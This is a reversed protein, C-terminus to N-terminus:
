AQRALQIFSYQIFICLNCTNTLFEFTDDLLELLGWSNFVTLLSFESLAYILSILEFSLYFFLELIGRYSAFVTGLRFLLEVLTFCPGCSEFFPDIIQVFNNWIELELDLFRLCLNFTSM